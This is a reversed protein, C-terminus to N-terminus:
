RTANAFSVQNIGSGYCLAKMCTLLKKNERLKKNYVNINFMIEIFKKM